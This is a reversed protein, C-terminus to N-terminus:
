SKESRVTIWIGIVFSLQLYFFPIGIETRIKQPFLSQFDTGVWCMMGLLFSVMLIVALLHSTLMPKLFVTIRGPEPRNKTDARLILSWCYTILCLMMAFAILPENM